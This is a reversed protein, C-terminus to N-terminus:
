NAPIDAVKLKKNYSKILKSEDKMFTKTQVNKKSITNTHPLSQFM